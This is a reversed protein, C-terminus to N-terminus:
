RRYVKTVNMDWKTQDSKRTLDPYDCYAKQAARIARNVHGLGPEAKGELSTVVHRFFQERREAPLPKAATYITDIEPESLRVPPVAQLLQARIAHCRQWDETAPYGDPWPPLKSKDNVHCCSLFYEEGLGLIDALRKSGSKFEASDQSMHELACFLEIAEASFSPRRPPRTIRTRNTPV